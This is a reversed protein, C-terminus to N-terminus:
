IFFVNELQRKNCENKDRHLEIESILRRLYNQQSVFKKKQQNCTKVSPKSWNNEYFIKLIEVSDM